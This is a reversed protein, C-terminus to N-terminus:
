QLIKLVLVIAPGGFSLLILALAIVHIHNVLVSHHSLFWTVLRSAVGYSGRQLVAFQLAFYTWVQSALPGLVFLHAVMEM